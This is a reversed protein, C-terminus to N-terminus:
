EAYEVGASNLSAWNRRGPVKSENSVGMEGSEAMVGSEGLKSRIPLHFSSPTSSGSASLRRLLASSARRFASCSSCSRRSKKWISYGRVSCCCCSARPRGGKAEGAKVTCIVRVYINYDRPSSRTRIVVISPAYVSPVPAVPAWSGQVLLSERLKAPMLSMMIMMVCGNSDIEDDSGADHGSASFM